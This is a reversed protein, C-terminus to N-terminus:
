TLTETKQNNDTAKAFRIALLGRIREVTEKIPEPVRDVKVEELRRLIRSKVEESILRILEERTVYVWGRSVIRKDLRWEEGDLGKVLRLYDTVHIKYPLGTREEEDPRRREARILFDKWIEELAGDDVVAMFDEARRAEREAWREWLRRDRIQSLILLALQFSLLDEVPDGFPWVFDDLAAMIRGRAERLLKTTCLEEVSFASAFARAELLVPVGALVRLTIKPTTSPSQPTLTVDKEVVEKKFVDGRQTLTQQTRATKQVVDQAVSERKQEVKSLEGLEQILERLSEEDLDKIERLLTELKSKKAHRFAEEDIPKEPYWRYMPYNRQFTELLETYTLRDDWMGVWDIIRPDSHPNLTMFRRILAKLEVYNVPKNLYEAEKMLSRIYTELVNDDIKTMAVNGEEEVTRLIDYPRRVEGNEGGGEGSGKAAGIIRAHGSGGCGKRAPTRIREPICFGAASRRAGL